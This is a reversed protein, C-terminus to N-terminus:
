YTDNAICRTSLALAFTRWPLIACQKRVPFKRVALLPQLQREFRPKEDNPSSIIAIIDDIIEEINDIPQNILHQCMMSASARCIACSDGSFGLEVIIGATVQTYIIIEDGCAANVGEARHTIDFELEFGVPTKHHKLLAQQYLKLSDSSLQQSQAKM